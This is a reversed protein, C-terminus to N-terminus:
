NNNSEDSTMLARAHVLVTMRRHRTRVEGEHTPDEYSIQNLM